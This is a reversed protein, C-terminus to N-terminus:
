LCGLSRAPDAARVALERGGLMVTMDRSRISNAASSDSSESDSESGSGSESGSASDSDSDSSSVVNAQM